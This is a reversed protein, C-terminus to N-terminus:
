NDKSRDAYVTSFKGFDPIDSKTLGTTMLETTDLEVGSSITGDIFSPEEGATHPTMGITLCAMPIIDRLREEFEKTKSGKNGEDTKQKDNIIQQMATSLKLFETANYRNLPLARALQLGRVQIVQQYQKEILKSIDQVPVGISGSEFGTLLLDCVKPGGIYSFFKVSPDLQAAVIEPPPTKTTDIGNRAMLENEADRIAQAARFRDAAPLLTNRFVWDTNSMYDRVNFFLKEYWVVTETSTKMKQAISDYSDGSLLRSELMFPVEYDRGAAEYIKVAYYLHPNDFLWKQDFNTASKRRNLTLLRYLRVFEDDTSRCRQVPRSQVMSLVYQHRWDPTLFPDIARLAQYM